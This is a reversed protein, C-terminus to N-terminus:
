NKQANLAWNYKLYRVSFDRSSLAAQQSLTGRGTLFYVVGAQDPKGALPGDFNPPLVFDEAFWELISSIEIRKRRTNVRVGKSPDALFGTVQDQLQQELNDGVYAQQRLKPCSIAACVLAFHIRPEKFDPRVIGHEIEDLSRMQGAIRRRQLNWVDAIQWISSSPFAFGKFGRRKLPYHAIVTDITLANYANIWFALQQTKNWSSLEDTTVAGLAELYGELEVRQDIFGPYDVLGQEDVHDRLLQSFTEHAHDFGSAATPAAVSVAVVLAIFFTTPARITFRV